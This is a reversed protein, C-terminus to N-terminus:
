GRVGKELECAIACLLAAVGLAIAASVFSGCYANYLFCIGCLLGVVGCIIQILGVYKKSM